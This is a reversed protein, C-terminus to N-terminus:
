PRAPAPEGRREVGPDAPRSVARPRFARRARRSSRWVAPRRAPSGSPSACSRTATSCGRTSRRTPPWRSARRRRGCRPWAAGRASRTCRARRAAGAAVTWDVVDDETFDPAMRALQAKFREYVSRDDERQEPADPACYRPLYVLHHGGTHETGTVQTTEVASTIPTPECINVAYYPLLSRRTKLVACVVGLCRKPYRDTLPALEEPLLRELAPPQLTAVTLDFREDEGGVRVGAVRDGDLVLGEVPAGARTTCESSGRAAWSRTSSASTVASSIASASM